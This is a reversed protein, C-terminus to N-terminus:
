FCKKSMWYHFMTGTTKLIFLKKIKFKFTFHVSVNLMKGKIIADTLRISHAKKSVSRRKESNPTTSSLKREKSKRWSSMKEPDKNKTSPSTKKNTVAAGTVSSEAENERADSVIEDNRHVPSLSKSPTTSSVEMDEHWEDIVLMNDDSDM